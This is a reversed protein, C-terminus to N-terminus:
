ADRSIESCLKVTVDSTSAYTVSGRVVLQGYVNNNVSGLLPLNLNKETAIANASSGVTAYDAAAFSIIGIMNAFDAASIAITAADATPTFTQNFLLLDIAAKQNGKDLLVASILKSYGGTVLDSFTLLGGLAKGTTYAGATITPTQSVTILQIRM